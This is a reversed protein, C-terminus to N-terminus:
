ALWLVGGHDAFVEALYSKRQSPDLSHAPRIAYLAPPLTLGVRLTSPRPVLSAAARLVDFGQKICLPAGFGEPFRRPFVFRQVSQAACTRGIRSM